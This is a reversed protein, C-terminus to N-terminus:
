RETAEHEKVVFSLVRSEMSHPFDFGTNKLARKDDDSLYPPTYTADFDYRGPRPPGRFALSVQSRVNSVLALSQGPRLTRWAKARELINPLQFYDAICGHGIVSSNGGPNPRYNMGIDVTGNSVDGCDQHPSPLLVDHDTINTVTLTLESPLGSIELPSATLTIELNHAAAPQTQPRALSCLLPLSFLAIALTRAFKM